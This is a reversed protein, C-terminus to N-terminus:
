RGIINNTFIMINFMTCGPNIHQHKYLMTNSVSTPEEVGVCTPTKLGETFYTIRKPANTTTRIHSISQIKMNTGHM